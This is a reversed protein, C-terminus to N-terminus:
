FPIGVGIGMALGGKWKGAWALSLENLRGSREITESKRTQDFVRNDASFPVGSPDVQVASLDHIYFDLDEDYFIAGANDALGTDFDGYNDTNAQDAFMEVISGVNQTEYSIVQNYNAFNQFGLAFNSTVMNSGYPKRHSVYGVNEIIFESDKSGNSLAQGNQLTNAKANNYSLSVMVEKSRYDALGAVNIGMSAFDGGMAGFSGGTGLARATGGPILYSYRLADTLNQASIIQIGVISFLLILIYRKM